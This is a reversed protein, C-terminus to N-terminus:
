IFLLTLIGAVVGLFAGGVVDRPYHIGLFVRFFALAIAFFYLAYSLAAFFRFAVTAIFFASYAHRSPFSDDMGKRPAPTDSSQYPRKAAIVRRLLTVLLFPIASYVIFEVLYITSKRFALFALLLFMLAFLATITRGIIVISNKRM